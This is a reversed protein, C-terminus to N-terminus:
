PKKEETKKKSWYEHFSFFLNGNSLVRCDERRINGCEIQYMLEEGELYNPLTANKMMQVRNYQSYFNGYFPRSHWTWKLDKRSFLKKPGRVPESSEDDSATKILSKNSGCYFRKDFKDSQSISVLDDRTIVNSRKVKKKFQGIGYKEALSMQEGDAEGQNEANVDEAAIGDESIADALTDAEEESIGEGDSGDQGDKQGEETQGEETGDDADTEDDGERDQESGSGREGRASLIDGIKRVEEVTDKSFQSESPDSVSVVEGDEEVDRVFDRWEDVSSSGREFESKLYKLAIEDYLRAMERSVHMIDAVEQLTMVDAYRHRFAKIVNTRTEKLVGRGSQGKEKVPMQALIKCMGNVMGDIELKQLRKKDESGPDIENYDPSQFNSIFDGLTTGNKEDTKVHKDLIAITARDMMVRKDVYGKNGSGTVPRMHKMIYYGAITLFRVGKKPDYHNAAESLGELAYQCIDDKEETRGFFKSASSIAFRVNHLIMIEKWKEFNTEFYTETMLREEEATLPPHTKAIDLIAGFSSRLGEDTVM